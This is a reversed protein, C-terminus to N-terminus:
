EFTIRCRATWHIAVSSLSDPSVLLPRLPIINAM